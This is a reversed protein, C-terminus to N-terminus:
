KIVEEDYIKKLPVTETAARKMIRRHAENLIKKDTNGPHNHVLNGNLILPGRIGANNILIKGTFNVIYINCHIEDSILWLRCVTVLLRLYTGRVPCNNEKWRCVCYVYVTVNMNGNGGHRGHERFYFGEQDGEGKYWVGGQEGV